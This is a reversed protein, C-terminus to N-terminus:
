ARFMGAAARKPLASRASEGAEPALSKVIQVLLCCMLSCFSGLECIGLM